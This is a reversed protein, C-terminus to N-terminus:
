HPAALVQPAPVGIKRPATEKLFLSVIVGMAVGFLAVWLINQIGYNQAVGGAIIPAVGGGFVEGAGVVMGIASSILGPPASETSPVRLFVSSTLRHAVTALRWLKALIL